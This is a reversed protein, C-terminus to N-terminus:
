IENKLEEKIEKISKKLYNSEDRMNDAYDDLRNLIEKARKINM